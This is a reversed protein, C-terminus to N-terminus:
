MFVIYGERVRRSSIDLFNFNFSNCTFIQNWFRRAFPFRNQLLLDVGECDECDCTNGSVGGLDGLGVRLVMLSVKIKINCCSCRLKHQTYFRAIRQWVVVYHILMILHSM